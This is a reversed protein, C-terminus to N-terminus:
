RLVLTQAEEHDTIQVCATPLHDESVKMAAIAVEFALGVVLSGYLESHCKINKLKGLWNSHQTWQQSRGYCGVFAREVAPREETYLQVDAIQAYKKQIPVAESRSLVFGVAGEGLVLSYENSEPELKKVIPYHAVAYAHFEAVEDAVVVVVHDVIDQRIWDYATRFSGVTTQEMTMVTSTPGQLGFAISLHSATSNQISNAFLTPSAGTPGELHVRSKYIRTLDLPGFGTGVILGIRTSQTKSKFDEGFADILAENVAAFCMRSIRSMRRAVGDPVHSPLLVDQAKYTTIEKEGEVTLIKQTVMNPQVLHDLGDKLFKMGQGLASHQGLGSIVVQISM